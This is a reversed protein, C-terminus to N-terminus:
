FPPAFTAMDYSNGLSGAASSWDMGKGGGLNGGGGASTNFLKGAQGFLDSVGSGMGSYAAGLSRRRAEASDGFTQFINMPSSFASAAGGSASSARLLAQQADLRSQVDAKAYSDATAKAVSEDRRAPNTLIGPAGRARLQSQRAQLNNLGQISSMVQSEKFLAALNKFWASNPDAAAEAYTRSATAAALADRLGPIEQYPDRKHTAAKGSSLLGTANGALSM